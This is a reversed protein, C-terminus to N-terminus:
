EKTTIIIPLMMAVPHMSGIVVFEFRAPTAPAGNTNEIGHEGAHM